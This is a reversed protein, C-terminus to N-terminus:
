RYRAHGYRWERAVLKGVTGDGATRESLWRTVLLM